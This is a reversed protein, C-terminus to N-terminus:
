RPQFVTSCAVSSFAVGVLRKIGHRSRYRLLLQTWRLARSSVNDGRLLRRGSASMCQCLHWALADHPTTSIRGPHRDTPWATLKAVISSRPKSGYWLNHIGTSPIVLTPVTSNWNRSRLRQPAWYRIEPAHAFGLGHDQAPSPLGCAKCLRSLVQFWPSLAFMCCAHVPAQYEVCNDTLQMTGPIVLISAQSVM